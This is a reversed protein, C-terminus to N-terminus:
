RRRRAKIFPQAALNLVLLALPFGIVAFLINILWAIDWYVGAALVAALVLGAALFILLCGVAMGHQPDRQRVPLLLVVITGIIWVALGVAAIISKLQLTLM